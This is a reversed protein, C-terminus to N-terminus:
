LNSELCLETFAPFLVWNSTVSCPFCSTVESLELTKLLRRSITIIASVPELYRILQCLVTMMNSAHFLHYGASCARGWQCTIYLICRVTKGNNPVCGVREQAWEQEHDPKWAQQKQVRPESWNCVRSSTHTHPLETPHLSSIPARVWHKM